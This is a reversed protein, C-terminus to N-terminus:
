TQQQPKEQLKRCNGANNLQREAEKIYDESIELKENLCLSFRKSQPNYATFQNESEM